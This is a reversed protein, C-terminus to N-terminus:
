QYRLVVTEASSRSRFGTIPFRLKTERRVNSRGSLFGDVKDLDKITLPDTHFHMPIAALRPRIEDVVQTAKRADITWKGGVPVLVVDISGIASIQQDTLTHGLDGLHAIRVGAVEFVFVTNLGIEAGQKSDHYVGVSRITIDKVKEDIKMWGKKDPTLGRLIKPKGHVLALNNHDPHEHSVTVADARLGAPPLYGINAPIPDMVVRTGTTSELLFCSQGFWTLYAVPQPAAYVALFSGLVLVTASALLTLLLSRKPKSM